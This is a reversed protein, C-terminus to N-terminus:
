DRFKHSPMRDFRHQGALAGVLCEDAIRPEDEVQTGDQQLRRALQLRRARAHEPVRDSAHETAGCLRHRLLRLRDYALEVVAELDLDLFLPNTDLELALDSCSRRRLLERRKELKAIM